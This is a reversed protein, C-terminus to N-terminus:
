KSLSKIENRGTGVVGEYPRVVEEIQSSINQKSAIRRCIFL